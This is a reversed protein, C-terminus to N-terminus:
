FQSNIEVMFKLNKQNKCVSAPLFVLEFIVPWFFFGEKVNIVPHDSPSSKVDVFPTRTIGTLDDPKIYCYFLM